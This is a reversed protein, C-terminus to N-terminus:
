PVNKGNQENVGFGLILIRGRLVELINRCKGKWCFFFFSFVVSFIFYGWFLGRQKALVEALKEPPKTIRVTRRLTCPSSSWQTRRLEKQKGKMIFGNAAHM